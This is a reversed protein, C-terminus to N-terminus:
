LSVILWNNRKRPKRCLESKVTLMTSNPIFTHQFLAWLESSPSGIRLLPPNLWNNSLYFNKLHLHLFIIVYLPSQALNEYICPRYYPFILLGSTISKITQPLIFASTSLNPLLNFFKFNIRYNTFLWRRLHSIPSQLGWNLM